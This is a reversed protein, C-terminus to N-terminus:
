ACGPLAQKLSAIIKEYGRSYTDFIAQDFARYSGDNMGLMITM